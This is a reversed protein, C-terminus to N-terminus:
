FSGASHMTTGLDWKGLFIHCGASATVMSTGQEFVEATKVATNVPM